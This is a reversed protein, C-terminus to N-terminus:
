QQLESTQARKAARRYRSEQLMALGIQLTAYDRAMEAAARADAETSFAIREFGQVKHTSDYDRYIIM